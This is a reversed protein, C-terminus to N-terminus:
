AVAAPAAPPVVPEEAFDLMVLTGGESSTVSLNGDLSRALAQVIPGGRGRRGDGDENGGPSSGGGPWAAADPLGVGDDEVSLRARGATLRQFRVRVVGAERGAFAHELANTLLETLILGARAAQEIPLTVEECDVNVRVSARGDMAGVVAVIRSMYAGCSVAHSTVSGVGAPSLEEYLLALSEVRRGLTRLSEPTARDGQMRIMSVVMALHNKVRHQLERMLTDATAGEVTVPADAVAPADVKAGEKTGPVVAHGNADVEMQVGLFAELRGDEGRVPTVLLRNRFPTGDAKENLLDLKIEREAALAERIRRVDEPAAEDGQLFRCNRGVAFDRSYYTVREFAENVYVIPNDPLRPDTLVMAVPVNRM